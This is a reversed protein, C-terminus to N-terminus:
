ALEIDEKLLDAFHKRMRDTDATLGTMLEFATIAQNLCMIDGTVIKCGRARSLEVLPTSVPFYVVEAIMHEQKILQEPLPLGGKGHMGVTSANVILRADNAGSEINRVIQLHDDDFHDLTAQAQATNLDHIFVPGIGKQLLAYIVARGAGGAGLVLAPGNVDNSMAVLAEIQAAFGLWDTNHGTTKGERIVVTNVAGLRAADDSVDDLLPIIATKFPHTVNSGAFGLRVLSALVEALDTDQLNRAGFDVPQYLGSVGLARFGENHLSPSLSGQLDRGLLGTLYSADTM